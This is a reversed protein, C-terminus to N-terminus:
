RHELGHQTWGQAAYTKSRGTSKAKFGRNWEDYYDHITSRDKGDVTRSARGPIQIDNIPSGGADARILVSLQRFDVGVNWVTTAIAKKLRGSEFARALNQRREPTMAPESPEIMGKGMYKRRREPTMASESYVMQFEPLLRKLHVAHDLTEVTILTQVDEGYKRADQAILMNRYDNRWVGWRKREIPDDEGETPDVDMKVRTWIVDIPVVMSHAQAEAYGMSFVMPGFIAEVRLDKGDLRMDHSASFGFNCSHQYGALQYAAKDAALEHIEDGILIDAQGDSRHLSDATYCMIRHGTRKLGGGVIGVNSLMSLLGPYIRERLVPVRKTVVHIRARPLALGVFGILTSKGFGPPADFRGPLGHQLRSVIKLLFDEQGHRFDYGIREMSRSLHDWDAVLRSKDRPTVHRMVPKYGHSRLVDAIRKYLGLPAVLRDKVDYAFLCLRQTEVPVGKQKREKGYLFRRTEYQLAAELSERIATPTPSVALRNGSRALVIKEM